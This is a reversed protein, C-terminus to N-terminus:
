IVKHYPNQNKGKVRYYASFELSIDMSMKARKENDNQGNGM